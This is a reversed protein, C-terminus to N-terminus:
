AYSHTAVSQVNHPRLQLSYETQRGYYGASDSTDVYVEYNDLLIKMNESNLAYGAVLPVALADYLFPRDMEIKWAEGPYCALPEDLAIWRPFLRSPVRPDEEDFKLYVVTPLVSRPHSLTITTTASYVKLHTVVSYKPPTFFELRQTCPNTIVTAHQVSFLGTDAIVVGKFLKLTFEDENGIHARAPDQCKDFLESLARINM